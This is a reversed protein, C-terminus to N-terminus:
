GTPYIWLDLPTFPAPLDCNNLIWHYFHNMQKLITLNRFETAM